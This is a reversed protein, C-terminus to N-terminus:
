ADNPSTMKLSSFHNVANSVEQVQYENTTGVGDLSFSDRVAGSFTTTAYATGTMTHPSDIDIFAVTLNVLPQSFSLWLRSGVPHNTQSM